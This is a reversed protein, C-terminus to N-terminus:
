KKHLQYEKVAKNHEELTDSFFHTGDGKSVFYLSTGKSPNLAAEISTRSVLGIPSPPLGDIHYTNYTHKMNIHPKTIDGEFKDGLAYIITPDSQLKMKAQLRRVFVGAIEKKEIGEKEIISALILAEYSNKYPLRISRLMWIEDLIQKHILHARELIDLYSDGKEFNYTNPHFLGELSRSTINLRSYIISLDYISQDKTIYPNKKLVKLMEYLTSGEKLRIQRYYISGESIKSILDVVSDNKSILYEGTHITKSKKLIKGYFKVLTPRAILHQLYLQEVVQNLGQGKHVEFVINEGVSLPKLLSYTLIIIFLVALSFVTKIISSFNISM